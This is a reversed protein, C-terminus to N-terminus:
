TLYFIEKGLLYRLKPISNTKTSRFGNENNKILFACLNQFIFNKKVKWGFNADENWGLRKRDGPKADILCARSSQRLIQWLFNICLWEGVVRMITLLTESIKTQDSWTKSVSFQISANFSILMENRSYCLEYQMNHFLM